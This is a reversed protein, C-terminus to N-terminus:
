AGGQTKTAARASDIAVDFPFDLYGTGFAAFGVVKGTYANADPNWSWRSLNELLWRYREADEIDQAAPEAQAALTDACERLKQEADIAWEYLTDSISMPRWDALDRAQASLTDSGAQAPQVEQQTALAADVVNKLLEGDCNTYEDLEEMSSVCVLADRMRAADAELEKIRELLPQAYAEVYARMTSDRYANVEVDRGIIKITLFGDPEPLPPM